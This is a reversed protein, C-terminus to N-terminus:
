VRWVDIKVTDAFCLKLKYNSRPKNPHSVTAKLCPTEPLIVSMDGSEAFYVMMCGLAFCCTSFLKSDM